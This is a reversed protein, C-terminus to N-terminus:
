WTAGFPTGNSSSPVYRCHIGQAAIEPCRVAGQASVPRGIARIGIAEVIIGDIVGRRRLEAGVLAAHLHTGVIEPGAQEFVAVKRLDLIEIGFQEGIEARLAHQEALVDEHSLGEPLVPVAITVGQPRDSVDMHPKVGPKFVPEEIILVSYHKAARSLLHQPRQWVFDWRLHSFVILSKM